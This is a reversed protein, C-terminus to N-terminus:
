KKGSIFAFEENFILLSISIYFFFFIKKANKLFSVPVHLENFSTTAKSRENSVKSLNAFKRGKVM